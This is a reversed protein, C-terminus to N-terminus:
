TAWFGNRGSLFATLHYILKKQAYSGLIVRKKYSGLM